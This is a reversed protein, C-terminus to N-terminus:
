SAKPTCTSAHGHMRQSAYANRAPANLHMFRVARVTRLPDTRSPLAAACRLRIEFGKIGASVTWFPPPPPIQLSTGYVEFCSVLLRLRPTAFLSTPSSTYQPWRYPAVQFSLSFVTKLLLKHVPNGASRLPLKGLRGLGNLAYARHMTSQTASPAACHALPRTDLRSKGRRRWAHAM